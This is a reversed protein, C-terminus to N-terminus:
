VAGCNSDFANFFAFFDGLDVGYADDVDAAPDSTDFANFFAFFDSLDIVGDDNLDAACAPRLLVAMPGGPADATGVMDGSNNVARLTSLYGVEPAMGSMDTSVGNHYTFSWFTSITDPFFMEGVVRGSENIDYAYGDTADAILPLLEIGNDPSYIAARFAGGTTSGGVWGTMVDADNLSHWQALGYRDTPSIDVQGRDGSFFGHEPGGFTRYAFGSTHGMENIGLGQSYAFNGTYDLTGLDIMNGDTILFAHYPGPSVATAYGVIEGANNIRMAVGFGAGDKALTGLDTIQYNGDKDKQWMVPRSVSNEDKCEGVIVGSDNISYAWAPGGSPLMPLETMLGNEWVFARGNGLADDAQGVVQKRNNIGWAVSGTGGELTGLSIARYPDTAMAVDAACAAAVLALIKANM